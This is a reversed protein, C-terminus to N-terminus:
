QSCNMAPRERRLEVAARVPASSQRQEKELPHAAIFNHQGGSDKQCVQSFTM